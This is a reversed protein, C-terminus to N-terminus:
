NEARRKTILLVAAGVMLIGGVVYFITTGIGGTSPLNSGKNNAISITATGADVEGTGSVGDATVNLGTLETVAGAGNQGNSTDATIVVAVDKELKNYGSLTAIEHIYYTGDDLGAVSFLGNSDSTLTTAQNEQDAWGTLKGNEVKAWKKTDNADKKYLNFTVGELQKQTDGDIKNTNLKYTFVIVKDPPTKGEEPTGEGSQNPNNSYTLYVENTNGPKKQGINADSNLVASYEVIIYKGEEVGKIGKLNNTSVTINSIKSDSDKISTIEFSSTIDEKNNTGAKDGAVYVKISSTNVADFSKALTDHFTYKYKTYKSMDPVTGILKFPVADGISYDATDNYKDGYDGTTNNVKVNEQVKKEVSPKDGKPTATVNGVVEMIYATYFDDANTLTNDSDKVLYYGAKLGSITYVGSASTSSTPNQLYSAVEKAFNRANEETTLSEAKTKADGLEGKGATTVGAGWTINSLTKGNSDESLDGAFIQYAEYTHGSAANNITISYTTPTPEEAFAVVSMALVMVVSLALAVLRKMKKM